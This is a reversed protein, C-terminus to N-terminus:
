VYPSPSFIAQLSFYLAELFGRIIRLLTKSRLGKLKLSEGWRSNTRPFKSSFSIGWRVRKFKKNRKRELSFSLFFNIVTILAVAPTVVQKVGTLLMRKNPNIRQQCLTKAKTMVVGRRNGAAKPAQEQKNM